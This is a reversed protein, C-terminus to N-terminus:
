REEVPLKPNDVNMLTENISEKARRSMITNFIAPNNLQINKIKGIDNGQAITQEADATAFQKLIRATKSDVQGTNELATINLNGGTRQWLAKATTAAVAEENVNMKAYKNTLLNKTDKDINGSEYLANLSGKFSNYDGVSMALNM